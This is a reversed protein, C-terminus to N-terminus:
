MRFGIIIEMESLRALLGTEGALTACTNSSVWLIILSM